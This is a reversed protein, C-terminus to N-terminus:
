NEKVTNQYNKGSIGRVEIPKIFGIYQNAFRVGSGEGEMGIGAQRCAPGELSLPAVSFRPL